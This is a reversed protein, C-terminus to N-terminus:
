CIRCDQVAYAAQVDGAEMLERVPAVPTGSDWAGRIREAAERIKSENSM